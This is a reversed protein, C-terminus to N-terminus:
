RINIIYHFLVCVKEKKLREAERIELEQKLIEENQKEYALFDAQKQEQHFYINYINIYKYICIHTHLNMEINPNM